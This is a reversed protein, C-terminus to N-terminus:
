LTIKKRCLIKNDNYVSYMYKGISNLMIYTIYYLLYIYNNTQLRLTKSCQPM